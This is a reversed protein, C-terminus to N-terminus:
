RIDEPLVRPDLIGRYGRTPETFHLTGYETFLTYNSEFLAEHGKPLEHQKVPTKDTVTVTDFERNGVFVAWWVIPGSEPVMKCTAFANGHKAALDVAKNINKRNAYGGLWDAKFLDRRMDGGILVVFPGQPGYESM